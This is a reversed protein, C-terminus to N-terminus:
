EEIEYKLFLEKLKGSVRDYVVQENADVIGDEDIKQTIQRAYKALQVVEDVDIIDDAKVEEIYRVIKKEIEMLETMSM